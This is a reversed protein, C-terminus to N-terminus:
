TTVLLHPGELRIYDYMVGQFPSVSMERTLFITPTGKWLSLAQFSWMIYGTCDMFEMGRSPITTGLRDPLLYLIRQMPTMSEFKYNLFM